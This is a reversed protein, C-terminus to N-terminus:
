RSSSNKLYHFLFLSLTFSGASILIEDGYKPSMGGSLLASYM